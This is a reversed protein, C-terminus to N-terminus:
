KLDRSLVNALRAGALAVRQRAASAAAARYEPTLTFPGGGAGIPNGYVVTKALEVGEAIWGAVDLASAAIPNPQPLQKAAAIVSQYDPNNSTTGVVDDWFGHLNGYDSDCNACKVANGGQDGNPQGHSIRTVCHLPQHIDGVLHLLWVLDYSKLADPSASALAARFAAIQTEANPKPVGPLATGDDSFPEDIFHWYRHRYLDAYGINQGATPSDPPVNPSSPNDETFRDKYPPVSKIQDAWISAMMFIMMQKDANSTGAPITAEWSAFDPNLRLLDYARARVAPTLKQYALYAVEMHGFSDWAYLPAAGSVLLLLSVVVKKMGQIERKLSM